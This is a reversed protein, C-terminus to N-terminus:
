KGDMESNSDMFKLRDLLSQKIKFDLEILYIKEENQNTNKYICQIRRFLLNKVLHFGKEMFINRDFALETTFGKFLAYEFVENFCYSGGYPMESEICDNFQPLTNKMEDLSYEYAECFEELTFTIDNSSNNHLKYAALLLIEKILLAQEGYARKIFNFDFSLMKQFRKINDNEKKM